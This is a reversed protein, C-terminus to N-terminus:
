CLHKKEGGGHESVQGGNARIQDVAFARFEYELNEDSLGSALTM